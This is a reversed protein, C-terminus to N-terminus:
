APRGLVRNLMDDPRVAFVAALFRVLDKAGAEAAKIRDLRQAHDALQQRADAEAKGYDPGTALIREPTPQLPHRAALQQREVWNLMRYREVAREYVQDPLGAKNGRSVLATLTELDATEVAKAAAARDMATFTGWTYAMIAPDVTLVSNRFTAEAETATRAETRETEIATRAAALVPGGEVELLRVPLVEPKLDLAYGAYLAALRRMVNRLPDSGLGPSGDPSHFAASGFQFIPGRGTNNEIIANPM